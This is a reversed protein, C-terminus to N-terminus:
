NVANDKKYKRILLIEILLSVVLVVWYIINEITKNQDFEPSYTPDYKIKDYTDFWLNYLNAEIIIIVIPFVLCLVLYLLRKRKM